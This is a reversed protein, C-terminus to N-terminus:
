RLGESDSDPNKSEKCLGDLNSGAIRDAQHQRSLEFLTAYLIKTYAAMEPGAKQSVELLKEQERLPMHIPLHHQNKYDAVQAAINMRQVFLTVLQDDIADIQRRLEALDM